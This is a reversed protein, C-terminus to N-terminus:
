VAVAVVVLGVRWGVVTMWVFFLPLPALACACACVAAESGGPWALFSAAAGAAGAGAGAGAGGTVLVPVNVFALALFALGRWWLAAVRWWVVDATVRGRAVTGRGTAAIVGAVVVTVFRPLGCSPRWTRRWWSRGWAAACARRCRCAGSDDEAGHTVRDVDDGSRDPDQEAQQGRQGRQEGDGGRALRAARVAEGGLAPRQQTVDAHQLLGDQGDHRRADAREGDGDRVAGGAAGGRAAVEVVDDRQVVAAGREDDAVHGAVAGAREALRREHAERQARVELGAGARAIRQRDCGFRQCRVEVLAEGGGRDRDM